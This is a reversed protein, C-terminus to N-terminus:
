RKIQVVDNPQLPVDEGNLLKKPDYSKAKGGRALLIEVPDTPGRFDAAVIAKALTLDETWPIVPNSVEGVVTVSPGRSQAQRVIELTQRQGALFAARAQADAKHKTVCGGLLLPTLILVQLLGGTRLNEVMMNALRVM